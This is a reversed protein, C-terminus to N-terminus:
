SGRIWERAIAAAKAPNRRALDVVREQLEAITKAKVAVKAREIERLKNLDPLAEMAVGPLEAELEAITKPLERPLRLEAQAAGLRTFLGRLFLILVIFALMPLGVRKGMDVWLPNPGQEQSIAETETAATGDFPVNIVEVQDGREGDFGMATKVLLQYRKMEADSRPVFTDDKYLGDVLVAASLRKIQGVPEVVRKVSKSVEYNVTESQKQTESSSNATSPSTMQAGPVNSAVGPPGSPNGSSGSSKETGRQESRVVTSAPDFVEHTSEVRQFDVTASVRVMAKHPGVARELLSQIKREVERELGHQFELQGTSLHGFGQQDEGGALMRGNADVITVQAPQLGEVSSAVLHLIGQIQAKALLAGSRLRLVVSASPKQQEDLFVSKQPIVLHVRVQEVAAIQSITRALEGQLARQYNLHQVFNTMNFNTRDFLEFGIGGGKPLGESALRLRSEHVQEAPVAISSGGAMLRYPLREEKLKDVIAAADDQTLNTFLPRYEPENSWLLLTAFGVVAALISGILVGKQVTSLRSYLAQLQTALERM